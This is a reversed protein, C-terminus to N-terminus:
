PVITRLWTLPYLLNVFDTIPRKQKRNPVFLVDGDQLALNQEM